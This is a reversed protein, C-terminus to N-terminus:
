RSPSIRLSRPNLLKRRSLDGAFMNTRVITPPQFMRLEHLNFKQKGSDLDGA